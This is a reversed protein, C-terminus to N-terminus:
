DESTIGFEIKSKTYFIRLQSENVRAFLRKCEDDTMAMSVQVPPDELDFISDSHSRGDHGFGEQGTLLTAGRVGLAKAEAILWQAVPIGDHERRQQSFFTVLYGEV